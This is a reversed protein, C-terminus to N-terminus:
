AVAAVSELPGTVRMERGLLNLVLGVMESDLLRQCLKIRACVFIKSQMSCALFLGPRADRGTLPPSESVIKVQFAPRM